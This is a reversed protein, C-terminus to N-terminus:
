HVVQRARRHTRDLAERAHSTLYAGEAGDALERLFDSAERLGIRELVEVSRIARLQDPQPRMSRIGVLLGEIRRSVELSPKSQLKKTLAAEAALGLAALERGAKDRVAFKPDDLDAVLKQLSAQSVAVPQLRKRLLALSEAPADVMAWIASGSKEASADALLAWLEESGGPLKKGTRPRTVDWLLLTSDSSISVLTKGDPTFALATIEQL